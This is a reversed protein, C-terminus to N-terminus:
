MLLWKRIEMEQVCSNSTVLLEVKSGSSHGRWSEYIGCRMKDFLEIKCWTLLEREKSLTESACCASLDSKFPHIVM